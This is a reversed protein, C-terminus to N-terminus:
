IFMTYLVNIIIKIIYNSYELFTYYNLIVKYKM